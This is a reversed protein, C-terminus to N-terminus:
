RRAPTAGAPVAAAVSARLAAVGAAEAGLWGVPAGDPRVLLAGAAPVGIARATVAGLTASAVPTCTGLEAAAAAWAEGDPGTVLTLGPGLLDLTSVGPAAWAHVIRGGLDAHLDNTVAGDPEASRGVTHRAVPRREREYSDLLRPGAWGHLVWALKWGLDHADGIATNLGTGGRPTARHAADGVLFADGARFTEALQAAFSFRGHREIRPALGPVGIGAAIRRALREPALQESGPAALTGYIWRDWGGAPLFVGGAEPHSIDYLGYRHDRLLTHLPARFLASAADLLRDPGRMAIGLSRRVASHAGDAAVVYRAHVDEGGALEVRVGPGDADVSGVEAGFRVRAHPFTRLHRLLVPELRDQPVCAPATPSVMRAEARSPMGTPTGHGDAARALTECHWQLWEADVGGARVEDELGWSRVLEMTRTSLATARPLGSRGARREVVLVEVGREALTIATTLGAPGAGAVLVPVESERM